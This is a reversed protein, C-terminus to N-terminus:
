GIFVAHITYHNAHEVWTCYITPELRTTDFLIFNSSAAAGWLM